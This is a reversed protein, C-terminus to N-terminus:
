IPTWAASLQLRTANLRDMAAKAVQYILAYALDEDQQCMELMPAADIKIVRSPELARASSSLVHPEIFASIGFSEGPYIVRFKLEKSLEPHYEVEVKFFLEVSGKLLIYFADAPDKEVFIIESRTYSVEQAIKTIKKLQTPKLFSFFPYRSLLEPTVM